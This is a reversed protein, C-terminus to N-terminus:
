RGASVDEARMPQAMWRGIREHGVARFHGWDRWKPEVSRLQSAVGDLSAPAVWRFGSIAEEPDTVTPQADAIVVRFVYSAFEQHRDNCVFRYRILGLYACPADDVGTEERVERRLAGLVSEEYRIGGSLLRWGGVPYIEKTHLLVQGDTREVVLLVEGRRERELSIAAHWHAFEADAMEIEVHERPVSRGAELAVLELPDVLGGGAVSEASM